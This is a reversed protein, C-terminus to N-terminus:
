QGLVHAREHAVEGLLAPEVDRAAAAAVRGLMDLADGLRQAVDRRARQGRGRRTM